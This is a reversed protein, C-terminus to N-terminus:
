RNGKVGSKELAEVLNNILDKPFHRKEFSGAPNAAFKPYRERLLRVLFAARHRNGKRYALVANLTSYLLSRNSLGMPVIAEEAEEFREEMLLALAYYFDWWSPHRTSAGIADKFIPIAQAYEGSLVLGYGYSAAISTDNPNLENARAFWDSMISFAGQWSYVFGVERAARASLPDLDTGKLATNLALRMAEEQDEPIDPNDLSKGSAEAILGGHIATLLGSAGQQQSLLKTCDYAARHTKSNSLGYYTRVSGLCDILPNNDGKAIIDAYIVGEPSAVKMLKQAVLRNNEPQDWADAAYEEARMVRNEVLGLLEILLMPRGTESNSGTRTIKMAYELNSWRGRRRDLVSLPRTQLTTITDFASLGSTLRDAFALLDPDRVDTIVQVVPLQSASARVDQLADKRDVTVSNWIRTPINTFLLVMFGLALISFCIAMAKRVSIGSTAIDQSADPAAIELDMDPEVPPQAESSLDSIGANKDAASDKGKQVLPSVGAAYDPVYRGTPISIVVPDDKGEDAYYNSLLERLRGAHVRVLPDTASDFDSDKGFVDVAISFGKIADSKGDLDQNVLYKLLDRARESREFTRSKLVRDVALLIEASNFSNNM